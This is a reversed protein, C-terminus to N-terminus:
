TREKEPGLVALTETAARIRAVLVPKFKQRWRRSDVKAPMPFRESEIM